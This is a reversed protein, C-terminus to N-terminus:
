NEEDNKIIICLKMAWQFALSSIIGFCGQSKIRTNNYISNYGNLCIRQTKSLPVTYEFNFIRSDLTYIDRFQVVFSKHM